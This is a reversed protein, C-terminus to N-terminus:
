YLGQPMNMVIKKSSNDCKIIFQQVYPILIESDHYKIKIIDQQKNQIIDIIKGTFVPDNSNTVTYDIINLTINKCLAANSQLTIKNMDKKEIFVDKCKLLNLEYNTIDEFIIEYDVSIRKMMHPLGIIENHMIRKYEDKARNLVQFHANRYPNLNLMFKKKGVLVSVPSEVVFCQTEEDFHM